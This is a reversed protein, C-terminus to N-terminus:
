EFKDSVIDKVLELAGYLGAEQALSGKIVEPKPFIQLQKSLLSNLIDLPVKESISGGLIVINPSWHVITNNLGLSLYKSIETWIAEDKINEASAGYLSKLYSGAIYSELHGTGGCSCLVEDTSIVQHGPEFGHTNRDIKKDVIRVGGIGTGITIYAIIPFDKGAGFVAEGLGGLMADNELIVPCDLNAELEEKLPKLVWEQLHPSKLLASKDENLAGAVGGACGEISEDGILEKAIETMLQIQNEFVKETPIVKIDKLSYGDKSTALRTNTAGIDFLLHM